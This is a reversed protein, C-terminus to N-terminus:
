LLHEVRSGKAMNDKAWMPRLNSLAWCRKFEPCHPSSPRFSAVPIIHDIHIHGAILAQWTMGDTFQREIHQVLDAMAYGLLSETSARSKGGCGLLMSRVRSSVRNKLASWPQTKRYRARKLRDNERSREPNAARWKAGHATSSYGADRYAKNAQKM